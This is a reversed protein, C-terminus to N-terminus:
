RRTGARCIGGGKRRERGKPLPAADLDKLGRGIIPSMLAASPLPQGRHERFFRVVGRESQLQPVYINGSSTMFQRDSGCGFCAEETQPLAENLIVALKAAGIRHGRRRLDRRRRNADEFTQLSCGDVRGSYILFYLQRLAAKAYVSELNDDARFL